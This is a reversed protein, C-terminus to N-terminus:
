RAIVWPMLNDVDADTKCRHLENFLRELYKAPDLGNVKATEVLGHYDLCGHKFFGIPFEEIHPATATILFAPTV